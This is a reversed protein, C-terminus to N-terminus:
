PPSTTGCFPPTSRRSLMESLGTYYTNPHPATYVEEGDLGLAFFLTALQGNKYITQQTMHAILSRVDMPGVGFQFREELLQEPTLTPLTARWWDRETQLAACFAEPDSPPAPVPKHRTIDPQELHQRDTVLWVWAHEAVM